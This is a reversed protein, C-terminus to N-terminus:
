IVTFERYIRDCMESVWVQSIIGFFDGLKGKIFLAVDSVITGYRSFRSVISYSNVKLLLLHNNECGKVNYSKCIISLCKQRTQTVLSWWAKFFLLRFLLGGGGGGESVCFCPDASGLSESLLPNKVSTDDM